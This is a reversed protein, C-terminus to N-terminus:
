REVGGMGVGSVFETGGFSGGLNEDTVRLHYPTGQIFPTPGGSSKLIRGAKLDTIRFGPSWLIHYALSM